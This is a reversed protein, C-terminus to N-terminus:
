DGFFDKAWEFKVGANEAAGKDSDRDGVMICKSLDLNLEKEAKLIMGPNPKTLPHGAKPPAPAFYMKDFVGGLKHDIDSLCEKCQKETMYGLGIGGQNTVAVIKYGKDIYKKIKEQRGPMVKQEDPRNPCPKGTTTTRVTDDLDLLLAKNKEM